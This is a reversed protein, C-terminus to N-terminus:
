VAPGADNTQLTSSNDNRAPVGWLRWKLFAETEAIAIDRSMYYRPFGDSRDIGALLSDIKWHGRTCYLPRRTMWAVVIGRIVVEECMEGSRWEIAAPTSLDSSNHSDQQESM